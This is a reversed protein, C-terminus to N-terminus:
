NTTVQNVENPQNSVYNPQNGVYNPQGLHLNGSQYHNYHNPQLCCLPRCTLAASVIAVILMTLGMAILLLYPTTSVRTTIGTNYNYNEHNGLALSFSSTILLIGACVASIIAMVLTAVVLCKKGSQAGGIALGGTIFFFVSSWIGFSMMGRNSDKVDVGCCLTIIGCFIHAAGLITAARNYADKITENDLVMQGRTPAQITMQRRTTTAADVVSVVHPPASPEILQNM